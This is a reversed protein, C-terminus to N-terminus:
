LSCQGGQVGRRAAVSFIIKGILKKHEEQLHVFKTKLTRYNAQFKNIQDNDDDSQYKVKKECSIKNEQGKM